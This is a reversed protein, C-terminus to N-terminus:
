RDLFRLVGFAEPIHFNPQPTNTPKWSFYSRPEHKGEVRFFNVRWEKTPDFKLTLAKIPIAIEATWTQSAKDLFVSREMGSKLDALGNPAIDLDIWMGNPSIELEKYERLRSPDPQLFVEAVDRDWLHDRRGSADSDAFVFLERYRCEFRLYLTQASWLLRVMTQRQPDSNKGQWDACFSIPPAKEWEPAPHAADLYIPNAIRFAVASDPAHCQSKPPTQSMMLSSAFAPIAPLSRIRGVTCLMTGSFRNSRLIRIDWREGVAYAKDM